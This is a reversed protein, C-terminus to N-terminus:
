PQPTVTSSDKHVESRRVIVKSRSFLGFSLSPAQLVNNLVDIPTKGTATRGSYIIVAYEM